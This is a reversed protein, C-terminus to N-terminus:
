FVNPISRYLQSSNDMFQKVNRVICMHRGYFQGIKLVGWGRHGYVDLMKWGGQGQVDMKLRLRGRGGWYVIFCCGCRSHQFIFDFCFSFWVCEISWANQQEIWGVFLEITDNIFPKVTQCWPWYSCKKEIFYYKVWNKKLLFLNSTWFLYLFFSFLM